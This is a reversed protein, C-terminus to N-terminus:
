NQGARAAAIKQLEVLCDECVPFKKPDRTPVFLVGCIAKVVDGNIYGRMTDREQIYHAVKPPEFELDPDAVLPAEVVTM